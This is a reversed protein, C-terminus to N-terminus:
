IYTMYLITYVLSMKKIKIKIKYINYKNYNPNSRM